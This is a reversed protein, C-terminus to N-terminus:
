RYIAWLTVSAGCIGTCLIGGGLCGLRSQIVIILDEDWVVTKEEGKGRIMYEQDLHRITIRKKGYTDIHKPQHCSLLWGENASYLGDSFNRFDTGNEMSM